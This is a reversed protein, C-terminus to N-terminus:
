NSINAREMIKKKQLNKIWYPVVVQDVLCQEMPPEDTNTVM